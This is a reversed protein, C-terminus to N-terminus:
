PGRVWWEKFFGLLHLQEGSHMKTSNYRQKDDPSPIQAIARYHPEELVSHPDPLM